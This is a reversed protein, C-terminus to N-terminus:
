RIGPGRWTPHAPEAAAEEPRSGRAGSSLDRLTQARADYFSGRGVSGPFPPSVPRRLMRLGQTDWGCVEGGGYPTQPGHTARTQLALNSCNVERFGNGNGPTSIVLVLTLTRSNTKWSYSYSDLFDRIKELLRNTQKNTESFPPYLFAECVRHCQFWRGFSCNELSDITPDIGEKASSIFHACSLTCLVLCLVVGLFSRGITQLTALKSPLINLM